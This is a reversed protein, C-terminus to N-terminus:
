KFLLYICFHEKIKNALLPWLAYMFMESEATNIQM